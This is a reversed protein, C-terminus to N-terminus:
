HWQVEKRFQQRTAGSFSYSLICGDFRGVLKPPPSWPYPPKFVMLFESVKVAFDSLRTEYRTSIANREPVMSSDRAMTFKESLGIQRRLRIDIARRDYPGHGDIGECHVANGTFGIYVGIALPFHTPKQGRARGTRDRHHLDQKVKSSPSITPGTLIELWAM